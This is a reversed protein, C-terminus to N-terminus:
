LRPVSPNYNATILEVYASDNGSAIQYARIYIALEANLTNLSQRKVTQSAQTDQFSDSVSQRANEIASLISTIQTQIQASTMYNAIDAPQLTM